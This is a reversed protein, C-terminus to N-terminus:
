PRDRFMEVGTKVLSAVTPAEDPPAMVTLEVVNVLLPLTLTLPPVKDRFEVVSVLGPEILRLLPVKFMPLVMVALVKAPCKLRVPPLMLRVPVRSLVSTVTSTLPLPKNPGPPKDESPPVMKFPM